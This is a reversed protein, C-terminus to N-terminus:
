GLAASITEAVADIGWDIGLPTATSLALGVMRDELLAVREHAVPAWSAFAAHATVAERWVDHEAFTVFVDPTLPLLEELGITFSSPDGARHQLAVTEDLQRLGLGALVTSRADATGFLVLQGDDTPVFGQVYSVGSLEPHRAATEAIRDEVGEQIGAAFAPRGLAAGMLEIHEDVSTAWATGPFAITPAIETLRRYEAETIGSNIAVILDPRQALVYELDVEGRELSADVAPLPAGLEEIADEVWPYYEREGGAAIGQAVPVTGLQIAIDAGSWGIVVLRQPQARVTTTGYAHDIEVPYAGAEPEAFVRREGGDETAASPACGTLVLACVLAAVAAVASRISM